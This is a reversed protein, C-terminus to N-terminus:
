NVKSVSQKMVQWCFDNQFHSSQCFFLNSHLNFFICIIFPYNQTQKEIWAMQSNFHGFSFCHWMLLHHSFWFLGFFCMWLFFTLWRRSKYEKFASRCLICPISFFEWGQGFECFRGLEKRKSFSRWQALM